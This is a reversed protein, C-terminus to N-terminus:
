FLRLRKPFSEQLCRIKEKPIKYYAAWFYASKRSIGRKKYIVEKIEEETYVKKMWNVDHHNGYDIIRSIIYSRHREIDVSEKDVDWFLRKISSSIEKIHKIEMKESGM